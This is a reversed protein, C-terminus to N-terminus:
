DEYSVNAKELQTIAIQLKKRARFLYVKVQSLTLETMEAIEEYNYGEYDRMLILSRQIPSLIEFGQNVLDRAEMSRAHEEQGHVLIQDYAQVFKRKRILDIMTNHAISFLYAKSKEVAVVDRKLWMKEFTQQVVDEADERHSLHKLVFRFIGDAYLKVCKNYEGTTM